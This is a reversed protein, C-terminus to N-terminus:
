ISSIVTTRPPSSRPVAKGAVVPDAEAMGQVLHEAMPGAGGPPYVALYTHVQANMDLLMGYRCGYAQFVRAMASPTASSFYAYALMRHAGEELLCAGARVTRLQQDASGSWNGPGWRNVLAGAVARGAAADWEVLPVGNQRAYRVQDPAEADAADWTKMRVTGDMQVFLTALGPQLRSLVVGEEIFGYHSGRNRQALEGYRFAGHARKFGGTFVAATRPARWPPVMGTTVLPKLSGFGDPGPLGAVRVTAPPRPSWDVRPHATGLAFALEFRALDFAVVYVLAGREATDLDNVRSRDSALVEPAVARPEILSVFVGDRRRAPYWQGIGLQAPLPAAVAIGLSGTAITQRAFEPAVRAPPPGDAADAPLPTGASVRAAERESDQLLSSKVQDLLAEGGPVRDRLFEVAAEMETRSGTVQNRLYVTDDCVPVYPERRETAQELARTSWLPCNRPAGGNHVVLGDPFAPDLILTRTEPAPNQLHFTHTGGDDWRAQLAYWAHVAPALDILTVTGRRGDAATIALEQRHAATQLELVSRAEGPAAGAPGSALVLAAALLSAERRLRPEHRCWNMMNM